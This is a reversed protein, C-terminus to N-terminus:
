GIELRRIWGGLNDIEGKALRTVEEYGAGIFESCERIERPTSIPGLIEGLPGHLYVEGKGEKWEIGEVQVEWVEAKRWGKSTKNVGLDLARMADPDLNFERCFAALNIIPGYVVGSPSVFGQWTKMKAERVKQM